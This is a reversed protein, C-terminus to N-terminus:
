VEASELGGYGPLYRYVYLSFLILTRKTSEDQPLLKGDFSAYFLSLGTESDFNIHLTEPAIQLQSIGESDMLSIAEFTTM